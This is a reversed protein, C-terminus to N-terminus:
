VRQIKIIFILNNSHTKHFIQEYKRTFYDLNFRDLHIISSYVIFKAYQTLM